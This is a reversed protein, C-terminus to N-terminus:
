IVVNKGVVIPYTDQGILTKDRRVTVSKDLVAYQLNANVGVTTNQMVISNKVTAGKEIQVGRFIISNEVTGNIICGDAVISNKVQAQEGYLTPVQDKVKTYIKQPADFLKSSIEPNLLDMNCKFYSNIDHIRGVYGSYEFGYIKARRKEHMLVDKVFDHKGHAICRDIQYELFAKEMYMVGMSVRQAKQRVSNVGVDTIRGDEDVKLEVHHDFREGSTVTNYMVTIDAHKEKHFQALEDFTTNFILDSGALLVYRHDSAALYDRIGHLIDVDGVDESSKGLYPPLVLLGYRKRNLDWASGSGLHDMLSRYYNQTPVGVREIRSNVVNSLIFDITRYRAGVPVAGISRSRTIEGIELSNEGAMIIALTDNM